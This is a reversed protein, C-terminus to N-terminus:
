KLFTFVNGATMAYIGKKCDQIKGQFDGDMIHTKGTGTQEYAFCIATRGEFIIQVLPKATHKYVFNNCCTNDFAYDFRFHQNELFRTLDVKRKPEHVSIQYRSPVWIVDVKKRVVEVKIIPRNRICVSIQHEEVPDSVRLLLFEISNRYEKIM